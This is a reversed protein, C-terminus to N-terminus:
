AGLACELCTSRVNSRITAEKASATATATATASNLRAFGDPANVTSGCRRTLRRGEGACGPRSASTVSDGDHDLESALVIGLIVAVVIGVVFLVDVSDIVVDFGFATTPNTGLM